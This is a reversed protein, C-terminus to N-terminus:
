RLKFVVMPTAEGLKSDVIGKAANVQIWAYFCGCCNKPDLWPLLQLLKSGVVARVAGAQICVM